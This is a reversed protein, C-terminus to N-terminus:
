SEEETSKDFNMVEQNIDCYSEAEQALKLSSSIKTKIRPQSSATEWEISIAVKAKTPGDIVQWDKIEVRGYGEAEIIVEREFADLMVGTEKRLDEFLKEGPTPEPEPADFDEPTLRYMDYGAWTIPLALANM